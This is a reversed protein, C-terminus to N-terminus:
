YENEELTARYRGIGRRFRDLLLVKHIIFGGLRRTVSGRRARRRLERNNQLPACILSGAM